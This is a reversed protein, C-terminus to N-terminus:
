ATQIFGNYEVIFEFKLINELYLHPLFDGIDVTAIDKREPSIFNSGQRTLFSVEITDEPKCVVDIVAVFHKVSRKGRVVVLVYSSVNLDGILIDANTAPVDEPDSMPEEDTDTLVVGLEEEEESSSDAAAM